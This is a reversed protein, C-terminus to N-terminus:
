PRTSVVQEFTTWSSSSDFGTGRHCTSSCCLPEAALPVTSPSQGSPRVPVTRDVGRKPSSASRSARFTPRGGVIPRCQLALRTKGNAWAVMSGHRHVLPTGALHARLTPCVEASRGVFADRKCAPPQGEHRLRSGSRGGRGGRGPKQRERIRAVCSPGRHTNRPRSAVSDSPPSIEADIRHRIEQVYNAVDRRKRNSGVLMSKRRASFRRWWPDGAPM